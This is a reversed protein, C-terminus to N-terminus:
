QCEIDSLFESSSTLLTVVKNEVRKIITIIVMLTSLNQPPPPAKYKKKSRKDKFEQSSPYRLDPESVYLKMQGHLGKNQSSANQSLKHQVGQARSKHQPDREKPFYKRAPPIHEKFGHTPYENYKDGLKNSHRGSLTGGSHLIEGNNTSRLKLQVDREPLVKHQTSLKTPQTRPFSHAWQEKQIVSQSIQGNQSGANGM